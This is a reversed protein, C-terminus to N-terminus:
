QKLRFWIQGFKTDRAGIGTKELEVRLQDSKDWNSSQRAAERESLIEKQKESIDKVSSLDLGFIQDLFKIFETFDQKQNQNVLDDQILNQFNSLLALAQPTNLDDLFASSISDKIEGFNIESKSDSNTQYSLASFNRLDMLRTSAAELLDWSFNSQNRYHSQLFLLRFALPEFGKEKIDILNYVNGLSKSMKRNEILLHENHSFTKAYIPDSKGATSQAIENEHHPFLLDIGGTHIDFPQGLKETSM